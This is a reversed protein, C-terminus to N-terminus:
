RKVKAAGNVNRSQVLIPESGFNTLQILEGEFSVVM